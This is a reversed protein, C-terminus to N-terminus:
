KKNELWVSFLLDRRHKSLELNPSLHMSNTIFSGRCFLAITAILLSHYSVKSKDRLSITM